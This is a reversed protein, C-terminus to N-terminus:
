SLLKHFDIILSSQRLLHQTFSNPFSGVKPIKVWLFFFDPFAGLFLMYNEIFKNIPEKQCPVTLVSPSKHALTDSNQTNKRVLINKQSLTSLLSALVASAPAAHSINFNQLLVGNFGIGDEDGELTQPRVKAVDSITSKETQIIKEKPAIHTNNILINPIDELRSCIALTNKLFEIDAYFPNGVAMLAYLWSFVVDSRVQFISKHTLIFNARHTDGSKGATANWKEASGIFMISMM